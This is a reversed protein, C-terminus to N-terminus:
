HNTQMMELGNLLIPKFIKLMDSRKVKKVDKDTPQKSKNKGGLIVFAFVFKVITKNMLICIWGVFNEVLKGFVIEMISEVVLKNMTEVITENM